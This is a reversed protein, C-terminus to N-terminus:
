LLAKITTNYVKLFSDHLLSATQTCSLVQAMLEVHWEVPCFSTCFLGNRETDNEKTEVSVFLAVAASVITILIFHRTLVTDAAEDAMTQRIFLHLHCSM